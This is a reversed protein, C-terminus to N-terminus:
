RQRRPESMRSMAASLPGVGARRPPPAAPALWSRVAELPILWRGARKVAGLESRSIANRIVKESVGLCTSLTAVTYAPPPNGSEPPLPVEVIERLTAIAEPDSALAQLIAAVLPDAM